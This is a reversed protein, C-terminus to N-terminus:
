SLNSGNRFMCSAIKCFIGVEDREARGKRANKPSGQKKLLAFKSDPSWKCRWFDPSFYMEENNKLKLQYVM